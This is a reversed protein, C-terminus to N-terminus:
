LNKSLKKDKIVTFHWPQSNGGSPASLGADIIKEIDEKSIVKDTFKRESHRCAILDYISM